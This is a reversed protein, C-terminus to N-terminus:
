PSAGDELSLPLNCRVYVTDHTWRKSPLTATDQGRTAEERVGKGAWGVESCGLEVRDLGM